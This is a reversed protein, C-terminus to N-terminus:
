EGADSRLLSGGVGTEVAHKVYGHFYWVLRAAVVAQLLVVLSDQLMFGGKQKSFKKTKECVSGGEYERWFKRVTHQFANSTDSASTNLFLQRKPNAAFRSRMAQMQQLKDQALGRLRRRCILAM